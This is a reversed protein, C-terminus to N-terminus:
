NNCNKCLPQINSIYDTGGKSLPIVHDKTLKKFEGCIACKQNFKEKLENWEQLSHSGEANKERAYRRSKLHSINEPNNKCYNRHYVQKSEGFKRIGKYAHQETFPLLYKRFLSYCKRCCFHRKYKKFHSPKDNSLGGCYDCNFDILKNKNNGM